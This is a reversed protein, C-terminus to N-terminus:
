PSSHKTMSDGMRMGTSTHPWAPAPRSRRRGPRVISGVPQCFLTGPRDGAVAPDFPSWRHARRPCTWQGASV